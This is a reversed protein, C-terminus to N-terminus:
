TRARGTEHGTIGGISKAFTPEGDVSGSGSVPLRGCCVLSTRSVFFAYAMGSLVGKVCLGDLIEATTTSVGRDLDKCIGM